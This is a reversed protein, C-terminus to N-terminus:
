PNVISNYCRFTLNVRQDLIRRRIPVSHIWDKQCNSYMILLDGTGLSLVKRLNQTRHKLVFDRTAGFSLSAIPKELDLEPENDSHWGMRDNGNRYLNLLCGNFEVKSEFNVMKLLPCFWDPWGNGYHVSGSYCYSIKKEALFTTMRPVVHSSGYVRVLPQKWELKKNIQDMWYESDVKNMWSSLIIWPRSKSYDRV